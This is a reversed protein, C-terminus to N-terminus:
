RVGVRGVMIVPVALVLALRVFGRAITHWGLRKRLWGLGRTLLWWRLRIASNSPVITLPWWRLRVATAPSSRVGDSRAHYPSGWGFGSRAFTSHIGSRPVSIRCNDSCVWHRYRYFWCDPWRPNPAPLNNCWRATCAQAHPSHQTSPTHQISQHSHTHTQSHTKTPTHSNEQQQFTQETRM